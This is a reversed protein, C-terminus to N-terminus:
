KQQTPTPKRLINRFELSMWKGAPARGAVKLKAEDDSM